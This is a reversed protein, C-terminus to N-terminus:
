ARAPLSDGTQPSLLKGILLLTFRENSILKMLIKLCFISSNGQRRVEWTRYNLPPDSFDDAESHTEGAGGDM